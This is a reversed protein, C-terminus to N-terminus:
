NERPTGMPLQSLGDNAGRDPEPSIRAAEYLAECHERSAFAASIKDMVAQLIERKDDANV